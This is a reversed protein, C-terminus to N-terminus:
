KKVQKNIEEAVDSCKKNRMNITTNESFVIYCGKFGRAGNDYQNLFAINAASLWIGFVSILM